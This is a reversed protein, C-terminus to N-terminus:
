MIVFMIENPIYLDNPKNAFLNWDLIVTISLSWKDLQVQM